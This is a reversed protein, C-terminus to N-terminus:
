EEQIRDIRDIRDFDEQKKSGATLGTEFLERSSAAGVYPAFASKMTEPHVLLPTFLQKSFVTSEPGFASGSHRFRSIGGRKM